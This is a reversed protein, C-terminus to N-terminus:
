KKMKKIKKLLVLIVLYARHELVYEIIERQSKVLLEAIERATEEDTM